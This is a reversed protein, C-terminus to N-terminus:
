QLAEPPIVTEAWAKVAPNSEKLAKFDDEMKKLRADVGAEFRSRRVLADSLKTNQLVLRENDALLSANAEVAKKTEAVAPARIRDVFSDWAWWVGLGVVLALVAYSIIRGAATALWLEIKALSM